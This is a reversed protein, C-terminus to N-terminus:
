SKLLSNDAMEEGTYANIMTSFTAGDQALYEVKWVLYRDKQSALLINVNYDNSKLRVKDKGGLEDAKKLAMVFDNTLYKMAVPVTNAPLIYDDKYYITRTYNKGASDPNKQEFAMTWYFQPESPSYFVFTDRGKEPNINETYQILEAVLLADDNWERAKAFATDFERRIQKALEGAVEDSFVKEEKTETERANQQQGALERTKKVLNNRMVFFIASIIVLIALGVLMLFRKNSLM